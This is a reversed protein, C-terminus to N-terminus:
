KVLRLPHKREPPPEDDRKATAETVERAVTLASEYQRRKRSGRPALRRLYDLLRTVESDIRPGDSM